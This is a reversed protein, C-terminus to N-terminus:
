VALFEPGGVVWGFSDAFAVSIGSIGLCVRFIEVFGFWLHGKRHSSPSSAAASLASFASHPWVGAGDGWLVSGMSPAGGDFPPSCVLPRQDLHRRLCWRSRRSSVRCGSTCRGGLHRRVRARKPPASADAEAACERVSRGRRSSFRCGGDLPARLSRWSHRRVRTLKPSARAVVRVIHFM